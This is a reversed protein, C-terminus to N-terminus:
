GVIYESKRHVCSGLLGAKRVDLYKGGITIHGSSRIRECTSQFTVSKAPADDVGLDIKASKSPASEEREDPQSLYGNRSQAM